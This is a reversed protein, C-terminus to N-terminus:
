RNGPRVYLPTAKHRPKTTTHRSQASAPQAAVPTTPNNRPANLVLGAPVLSPTESLTNDNRARAITALWPPKQTAPIVRPSAVNRPNWRAPIRPWIPITRGPAAPVLTGPFEAPSPAPMRFISQVKPTLFNLFSIIDNINIKNNYHITIMLIYPENNIYTLIQNQTNLIIPHVYFNQNLLYLQMEYISQIEKLDGLYKILFYRTNNIIFYYGKETQHINEPYLNYYYNIANKM